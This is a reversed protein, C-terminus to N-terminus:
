ALLMKTCNIHKSRIMWKLMNLGRLRVYFMINQTQRPFFFNPIHISSCLITQIIHNHSIYSNDWFMTIHYSMLSGLIFIDCSSTHNRAHDLM